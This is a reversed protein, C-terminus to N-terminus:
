SKALGTDVPWVRCSKKRLRLGALENAPLQSLSQRNVADRDEIPDALDMLRNFDVSQYGDLWVRDHEDIVFKWNWRSETM